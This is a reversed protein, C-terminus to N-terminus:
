DRNFVHCILIIQHDDVFFLPNDKLSFQRAWAAGVAQDAENVAIFGFDTRRKWGVLYKELDPVRKAAEVSEQYSAIALFEWLISKDASNAVRLRYTM